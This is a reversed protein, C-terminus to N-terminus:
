WGSVLSWRRLTRRTRDVVPRILASGDDARRHQGRPVCPRPEPSFQLVRCDLPSPECELPQPVGRRPADHLSRIFHGAASFLDFVSNAGARKPPLAGGGKLM